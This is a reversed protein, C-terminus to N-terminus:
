RFSASVDPIDRSLALWSESGHVDDEETGVVWDTIGNIMTEVSMSRGGDGDERM